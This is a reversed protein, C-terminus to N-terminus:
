NRGPKVFGFTSMGADRHRPMELEVENERTLRAWREAEALWLYRSDPELMAFHRCLAARANFELLSTM